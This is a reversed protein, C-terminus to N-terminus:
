HILAWYEDILRETDETLSGGANLTWTTSLVVDIFGVRLIEDESFHNAQTKARQCLIDGIPIDGRDRMFNHMFRGHELVKPGVVGKPVIAVLKGEDDILMNEQHLDGHVLWRADSSEWM